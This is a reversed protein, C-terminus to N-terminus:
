SMSYKNPYNFKPIYNQTYPKPNFEWQQPIYNQTYPKPNVGMAPTYPKPHITKPIVGM